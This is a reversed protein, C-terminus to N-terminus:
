RAAGSGAAVARRAGRNSENIRVDVIETLERDGIFVRVDIDGGGSFMQQSDQNSFVRAGTPLSVLEPGQEGVVAMGGRNILGGHALKPIPPIPPIDSFPNVDNIGGILKNAGNILGNVIDILFNIAAKFGVKIAEGIADGIKGFFGPIGKFFGMLDNFRDIIWQIASAFVNKITDWHKIILGPLTWNLFLNWLFQLAAMVIGKIKDWNAVILVALAITAAILLVWPNVMALANFIRMVASVAQFAQVAAYLGLVLPGLWQVNSSLFSALAQLLPGAAQLAGVLLEGVIQAFQAFGPALEIIVPALQELATLMVQTVVASVANLATGLAKLASQGEVSQLFDRVKGTVRVLTDLFNSGGADLGKFVTSVIQGVQVAVTGLKGLTDLAGAIWDRLQGTERANHVFEAAREAADGLGGSLGPLMDTGVATVDLLISLLPKLTETLNGVIEKTGGFISTITSVQAGQALFGAVSHAGANFEAAVGGMGHQLVPIYTAGLTKVEGALGAFLRDQVAHQLDTWQGRLSNVALATARANPSLKDLAQAAKDAAAAAKGAGRAADEHAQTVERQADRVGQAANAVQRQAAVVEDSGEVGLKAAQAAEQKLDGYRERVEDLSQAAERVGVEAERLDLGTAGSKQAEALRQKARELSVEASEEAVAAGSLALHLDELQETARERARRLGDQADRASQQARSLSEEAAQIRRAGQVAADAIGATAAGVGSNDGLATIADGFGSTGVKLTAVAAAASAAAAPVLALAGALSGVIGVAANIGAAATPINSLNNALSLFGAAARNSGSEVRNILDDYDKGAKRTDSGWSGVDIGLRVLLSALTTAM